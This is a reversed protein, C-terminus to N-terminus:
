QVEKVRLAAKLRAERQAERAQRNPKTPKQSARRENIVTRLDPVSPTTLRRIITV